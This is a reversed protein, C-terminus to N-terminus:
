VRESGGWISRSAMTAANRCRSLYWSSSAVPTSIEWVGRMLYRLIIRTHLLSELANSGPEFERAVVDDSTRVPLLPGYYRGTCAAGPAGFSLWQRLRHGSNGSKKLPWWVCIVLAFPKNDNTGITSISILTLVDVITRCICCYNDLMSQHGCGIFLRRARGCSVLRKGSLTKPLVQDLTGIYTLLELRPQKEVLFRLGKLHFPSDRPIRKLMRLKNEHKPSPAQGSILLAGSFNFSTTYLYEQRLLLVQM